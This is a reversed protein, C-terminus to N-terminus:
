NGHKEGIVFEIKGRVTKSAVGDFPLDWPEIGEVVKGDLMLAQILPDRTAYPKGDGLVDYSKVVGVETDAYWVQKIEVGDVLCKAKHFKAFGEPFEGDRFNFRM